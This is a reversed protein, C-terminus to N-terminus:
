NFLKRFAGEKRKIFPKEILVWSLFGALYSILTITFLNVYDAWQLAVIVTLFLGHYIYIGYSIDNTRLLRSALGPLTYAMSLLTIALLLSKLILFITQDIYNYLVLSFIGYAACWYFAQNYVMTSSYLKLKQLLMGTLFLYFHPIFSYNLLKSIIPSFTFTTSIINLLIFVVVLLGLWYVSKKKPLLLYCVPLLIYFQLEIPITWLSGNYSGFGYNSLFAPTYILGILQSPLWFITQKNLFSVGTLTIIFISVFICLWLGPFIRLIRNRFYKTLDNTREYSASILYGSIVFFVPVGPFLYLLAQQWDNLLIHLHQFYHDFVVQTAALLRLLDFNNLKFEKLATM